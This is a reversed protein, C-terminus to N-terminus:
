QLRQNKLLNAGLLGPLAKSSRATIRSSFTALLPPTKMRSEQGLITDHMPGSTICNAQPGSDEKLYYRPFDILQQNLM